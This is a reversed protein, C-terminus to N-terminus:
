KVSDLMAVSKQYQDSPLAVYGVQGAITAANSLYFKVFDFLGKKAKVRELNVYIFIPRSLPTYTGNNITAESPEIGGNDNDIMVVKLKDKNEKFYAYGFYGMAYKDGAVGQVLVNDDESKTFDSRSEHSKGNIAETFYDFTGSDTGPGYLKIPENPWDKRVDSWNKVTSGRQWIRKLESVSLKDVWTNQKNVVVSIGDYAIPFEQYTIKNSQAKKIESEQIKRSADNIDIDGVTFKKFGGGTGSMGVKVRVNPSIERFKEAIAETVPFVTSSGDIKVTDQQKSKTCSILTALVFLGSLWHKM